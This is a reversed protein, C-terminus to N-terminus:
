ALLHYGQGTTRTAAGHRKPGAVLPWRETLLKRQGSGLGCMGLGHVASGRMQHDTARSSM